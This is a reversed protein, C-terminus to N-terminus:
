RAIPISLLEECHVCKGEIYAFVLENWISRRITVMQDLVGVMTTSKNCKPCVLKLETIVQSSVSTAVKTESLNM